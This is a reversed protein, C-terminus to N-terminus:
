ISTGPPSRAQHLAHRSHPAIVTTTIAIFAQKEHQEPKASSPIVDDDDAQHVCMVCPVADNETFDVHVHFVQLSLAFALLYATHLMYRM